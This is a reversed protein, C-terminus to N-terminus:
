LQNLIRSASESIQFLEGYHKQLVSDMQRKKYQFAALYCPYALFFAAVAPILLCLRLKLAVDTALVIGLLFFLGIGGIFLSCLSASFHVFKEINCIEEICNDFRAQFHILQNKAAINYERKLSIEVNGRKRKSAIMELVEWGFCPYYDLYLWKLHNKTEINKYDYHIIKKEM